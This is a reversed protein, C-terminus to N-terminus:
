TLPVEVVLERFAPINHQRHLGKEKPQGYLEPHYYLGQEHELKPEEVPIRNAQAWPDQWIGTVQWSVKMGVRGGAIKFQNTNIEEAIYVLKHEGICTLQYRFDSNLAEFWEPLTILAEGNEDLTTVGDYVNKMDPLEVFSHSLQKHEPDLPHDILFSGGAKSLNGNVAVTGNFYGAYMTQPDAHGDGYIAYGDPQSAVGFVGYSNSGEAAGYVGYSNSGKARGYVGYTNLNTTLGYVGMGQDGAVNGYVGYGGTQSTNEGFVAPGGSM